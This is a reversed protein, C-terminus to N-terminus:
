QDIEPRHLLAVGTEFESSEESSTQIEIQVGTLYTRTVNDTGLTTHTGYVSFLLSQNTQAASWARAGQVLGLGSQAVLDTQYQLQASRGLSNTFTLSLGQDPSLGIVPLTAEIWKYNPALEASTVIASALTTNSPTLDPEALRLQVKTETPDVDKKARFRVRTVSWEITEAPLAPKFYQAWWQRSVAPDSSTVLAHDFEADRQSELGLGATGAAYTPDDVDFKLVDDIYCKINQGSVVVKLTYWLDEDNVQGYDSGYNFVPSALDTVVSAMYKGLRCNWGDNDGFGQSFVYYNNVDQVRFNLSSVDNDVSRIEASYVYDTWAAGADITYHAIVNQKDPTQLGGGSEELIGELGTWGTIVGDNFDDAFVTIGTNGFHVHADGLSSASDYGILELESSELDDPVTKTFETTDYALAFDEVSEIVKVIPGGNFTRKLPDGPTGSWEYRITEPNNDDDRDPVTFEVATVSREAFALAFQLEAAMGYGVEFATETPLAPDDARPIAGGALVLASGIAVLLISMVALSVALEVLTFAARAPPSIARPAPSVTNITRANCRRIRPGRPTMQRRISAPYRGRAPITADVPWAAM